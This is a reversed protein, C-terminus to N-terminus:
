GGSDDPAMAARMIREAAEPWGTYRFDRAIRAEWPAYADPRLIWEGLTATWAEGDLPDLCPSMGAVTEPVAGGTSAIVAKGHAFAEIIPLGFGEDRSPYVCFACDRYLRTLEADAVDDWHLVSEGFGAAADGFDGSLERLVEDVMWGIRGVFVLRFDRQQPVGAALLKRWAALLVAHGKRPELTSVFLAFGGPRLPARLPPLPASAHQAYGLPVVCAARVHLEHAAAFAAVDRAVCHSNCMISAAAPLMALWYERFRPIEEPPFWEPHTLPLLDYCLVALRCGHARQLALMATGKHRWDSGASLITDHPGVSLKPGLAVDLPLNALRRGTADGFPPHFAHRGLLVRQVWGAPRASAARGTLRVWELAMVLPYRVSLLNRWAPRHRRYDVWTMDIAGDVGLVHHRWRPALERLAGSAEDYFTLVVDPRQRLAHLALEQEVRVIGVPPGTWRAITTTDLILRQMADGDANDQGEQGDRHAPERGRPGVRGHQPAFGEAVAADVIQVPQDGRL